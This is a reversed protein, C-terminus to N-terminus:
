RETSEEELVFALVAGARAAARRAAVGRVLPLMYTVDRKASGRVGREGVSRTTKWKAGRHGGHSVAAPGGPGARRKSIRMGYVRDGQRGSV